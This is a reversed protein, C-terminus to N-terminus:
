VSWMGIVAKISKGVDVLTPTHSGERQLAREAQQGDEHSIVVISSEQQRAEQEKSIVVLSSDERVYLPKDPPDSDPQDGQGGEDEATDESGTLEEKAIPDESIKEIDEEDAKEKFDEDPKPDTEQESPSADKVDKRSLVEFMSSTTTSELSPVKEGNDNLVCFSGSSGSSEDFQHTRSRSEATAGEFHQDQFQLGQHFTFAPLEDTVQLLQDHLLELLSMMCLHAGSSHGILM